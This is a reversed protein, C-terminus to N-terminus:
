RAPAGADSQDTMARSLWRAVDAGSACALACARLGVRLGLRQRAVRLDDVGHAHQVLADQMPAALLGARQGHLDAREVAVEPDAADRAEQAQDGLDGDEAPAGVQREFAVQGAAHHDGRRDDGAARQLRELAHDLAPAAEHLRPGGIRADARRDLRQLALLRAQAQRPGVAPQGDVLQEIQRRAGLLGHEVADAELQLRALRQGITPGDPEPLDVSARM